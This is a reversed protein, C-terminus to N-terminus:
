ILEKLKSKSVHTYIETTTISQHCLLKQVYRMDLGADLLHACIHRFLSTHGSSCAQRKRQDSYDSPLHTPPQPLVVPTSSSKRTIPPYSQAIISTTAYYIPSSDTPSSFSANAIVRTM